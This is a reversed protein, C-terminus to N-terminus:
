DRETEDIVLELEQCARLYSAAAWAQFRTGMPRGTEAQAGPGM